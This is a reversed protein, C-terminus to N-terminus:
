QREEADGVAIDGMPRLQSAQRLRLVAIVQGGGLEPEILGEIVEGRIYM